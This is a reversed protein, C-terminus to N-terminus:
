DQSFIGNSASATQGYKRSYQEFINWKSYMNLM